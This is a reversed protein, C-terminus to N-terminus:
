SAAPTTGRPRVTPALALDRRLSDFAPRAVYNEDFLAAAGQGTFVGPVWQYKDTFGWVTYSICSRVLLCSEMMLSYGQAQANLKASDVPLISRVDAETIATVLGLRDFRRLNQLVDPPFGYQTGLHGQLGVGQVPVGSRRLTRVLDFVADSKPNVGEINFDNYFLIAKPDAQHAWRFADAIYSPGIGQLWITDRLTGDDNFAENVVDWAWIRGRFHGAEAFIHQKLINTLEAKTWTGSTLWAPLQNHWVLTHGRVQQGNAQAFAVLQDAASFDYAGRQPEVADWKMVNEPTVTSFQDAVMSRYTADAQLASTDVATGVRLGTHQALSRLTATTPDPIRDSGGATATANGGVAISTCLAIAAAATIAAASTGTTRRVRM